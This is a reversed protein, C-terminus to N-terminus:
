LPDRLNEIVEDVELTLYQATVAIAYSNINQLKYQRIYKYLQKSIANNFSKGNILKGKMM